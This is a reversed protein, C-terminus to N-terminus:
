LSIHRNLKEVLAICNIQHSQCLEDLPKREEWFNPSFGVLSSLDLAYRRKIFNPTMWTEIKRDEKAQNFYAKHEQWIQYKRWSSTAYKAILLVIVVLAIWLRHKNKIKMKALLIVRWLDGLMIVNKSLRSPAAILVGCQARCLRYYRPM